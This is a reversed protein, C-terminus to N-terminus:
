AVAFAAVVVVVDAVVLVILMRVVVVVVVVLLFDVVAFVVQAADTDFLPLIGAITAVFVVVLRLVGTTPAAAPAFAVASALSSWSANSEPHLM